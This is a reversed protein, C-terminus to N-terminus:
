RWVPVGRVAPRGPGRAGTLPEADRAPAEKAARPLGPAGPHVSGLDYGTEAHEALDIGVIEDEESLRFGMTKDIVKGLIWATTFSYLGVM